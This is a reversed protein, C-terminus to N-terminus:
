INIKQVPVKGFRDFVSKLDDTTEFVQHKGKSDDFAWVGYRPVVIDGCKFSKGMDTVFVNRYIKKEDM